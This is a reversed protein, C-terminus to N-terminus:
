WKRGMMKRSNLYYIWGLNAAIVLTIMGAWWGFAKMGESSKFMDFYSKEDGEKGLKAYAARHDAWMALYNYMVYILGALITELALMTMWSFKDYTAVLPNLYSWFSNKGSAMFGTSKGGM